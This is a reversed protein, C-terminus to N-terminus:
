YDIPPLNLHSIPLDPNFQGADVATDTYTPQVYKKNAPNEDYLIANLQGPVSCPVGTILLKKDAGTSFQSSARAALDSRQADTLNNLESSADFYVTAHGKVDTVRIPPPHNGILALQDGITNYARNSVTKNKLYVVNGGPGQYGIYPGDVVSTTKIKTFGAPVTDVVWGPPRVPAPNGYISNVVSSVNANYQDDTLNSQALKKLVRNIPIGNIAHEDSSGIIGNEDNFSTIVASNSISALNSDYLHKTTDTTINGIKSTTHITAPFNVLIGTVPDQVPPHYQHVQALNPILGSKSWELMASHLLHANKPFINSTNQTDPNYMRFQQNTVNASAVTTFDARTNSSISKIVGLLNPSIPDTNDFVQYGIDLQTKFITGSGIVASNTTFVSINGNGLNPDYVILNASYSQFKYTSTTIAVNANKTLTAATNSTIKSIRGVFVNASNRIVYNNGLQTSFVTGSGIVTTNGTFVSITGTGSTIDGYTVNALNKEIKGTSSNYVNAIINTYTPM